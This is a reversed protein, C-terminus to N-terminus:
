HEHVLIEGGTLFKVEGQSNNINYIKRLYYITILKKKSSFFINKLEFINILVIKEMLNLVLYFINLCLM